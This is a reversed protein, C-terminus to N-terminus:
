TISAAGSTVISYSGRLRYGNHVFYNLGCFMLCEATAGGVVLYLGCRRSCQGAALRVRPENHELMDAIGSKVEKYFEDSCAGAEIMLASACLAGHTSEWCNPSALLGLVTAELKTIDKRDRLIEKVTELGKDRELKQKSSLHEM